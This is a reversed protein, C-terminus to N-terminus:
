IKITAGSRLDIKLLYRWKDLCRIIVLIEKNHIEYNREAKNLLKLIFAVPRWNDNECRILMVGETTCESINVEVRIERDLDSVVLM